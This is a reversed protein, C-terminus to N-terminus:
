KGDVYKSAGFLPVLVLLLYLTNFVVNSGVGAAVSGAGDVIYWFLMAYVTMKM